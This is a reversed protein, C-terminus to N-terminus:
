NRMIIYAMYIIFIVIMLIGDKTNFDRRHYAFLYTLAIAVLSITIDTIMIATTAIPTIATTIGIIFLVNFICSGVVNGIALDTNKRYAATVSTVLEPLSTGLSVITLGVLTESMGLSLAIDKASAVVVDSGIMICIMGGIIYLIIKANSLKVDDVTLVHSQKKTKYVLFAVYGIIIALFIIGEIRDIVNGTLAFVLFLVSGIILVVFDEKLIKDEIKLNYVLATVGIVALLNFINSGVVNSIAIANSHSLASTISVAAEPASTGFAVITLGIIIAPVKLKTALESAGEVFFDAGKILLIFGVVLLIITFIDM